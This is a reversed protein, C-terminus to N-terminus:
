RYGSGVAMDSLVRQLGSENLPASAARRVLDVMKIMHMWIPTESSPLTKLFDQAAEILSDCLGVNTKRETEEGPHRQPLKPPMSVHEIVSCLVESDLSDTTSVSMVTSHSVTSATSTICIIRYLTVRIHYPTYM